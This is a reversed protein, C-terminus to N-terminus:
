IYINFISDVHDCHIIQYSHCKVRKAFYDRSGGQGPGLTRGQINGEEWGWELRPGERVQAWIGGQPIEKGIDYICFGSSCFCLFEVLILMYPICLYINFLHELMILISSHYSHNNDKKQHFLGPVRGPGPGIVERLIEKRGVGSRGPGM